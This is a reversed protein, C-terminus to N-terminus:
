RTMLVKLEYIVNIRTIGAINLNNTLLISLEENDRTLVKISLQYEGTILIVMRVEQIQQLKAVVEELKGTEVAILVQAQMTFGAKIPNVVGILSLIGEDQLQQVRMRITKETVGLEKAIQTFPLRANDELAVVIGYDLDDLLSYLSRNYKEEM